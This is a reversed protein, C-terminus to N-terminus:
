CTKTWKQCVLYTGKHALTILTHGGIPKTRTKKSYPSFQFFVRLPYGETIKGDKILGIGFRNRELFHPM